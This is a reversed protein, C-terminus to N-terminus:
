KTLYPKIRRINVTESVVGRQLRVTGNDNVRTVLYPGNWIPESYKDTTRAEVLVKDNVSYEYKRRRKNERLNNKDIIIQKRKRIDKWNTTFPINFMADRGFVLQMPSAKLTTHVTARM